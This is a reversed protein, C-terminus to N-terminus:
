SESVKSKSNEAMGAAALSSAALGNVATFAGKVIRQVDGKADRATAESIKKAPDFPMCRTLKPLDPAPKHLSASRIAM